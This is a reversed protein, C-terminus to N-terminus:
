AFLAKEYDGVFYKLRGVMELLYSRIESMVYDFEEYVEKFMDNCAKEIDARTEKEVFTGAAIGGVLAGIPGLALGILTGSVIGGTIFNKDATTNTKEILNILKCRIGSFHLIANDVAYSQSLLYNCLSNELDMSPMLRQRAEYNLLEYRISFNHKIINLGVDALSNAAKVILQNLNEVNMLGLAEGVTEAGRYLDLLNYYDTAVLEELTDCTRMTM